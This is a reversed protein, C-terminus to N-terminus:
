GRRGESLPETAEWVTRWRAKPAAAAGATGAPTAARRAAEWWTTRDEDLLQRLAGTIRETFARPPEDAAPSLPTGYRVSVPTRGRQPWSRGRPMATYSGRIAVPVVPVGAQVALYAAGPRLDQLTGDPTRTGEPFIVLSWGDALLEGPTATPTRAGGRRDIPVTGFLLATGAARWASDFFYDAAAAVVTTERREPPLSCLVLPTDLHSSHNAVFIVPGDLGDLADRGHVVPATEHWVLPRMVGQLLGARVARAPATRAWATPFERSPSPLRHPEAGAPLPPRSGWRWGRAVQRVLTRTSPGRSM